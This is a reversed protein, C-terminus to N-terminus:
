RRSSLANRLLDLGSTFDLYGHDILMDELAEMVLGDYDHSSFTDPVRAAYGAQVWDQSGGTGFRKMDIRQRLDNPRGHGKGDSQAALLHLEVKDVRAGSPLLDILADSILSMTLQLAERFLFAATRVPISENMSLGVDLIATALDGGSARPLHVSTLASVGQDVDGGLRYSADFGSQQAGPTPEWDGISESQVANVSSSVQPRRSAHRRQLEVIQLTADSRALADVLNTRSRPRLIDCDDARILGTSAAVRLQLLPLETWGQPASATNPMDRHMRQVTPRKSRAALQDLRDIRQILDEFFEDAGNTDIEAAQRHTIVRLAEETNDGHFTCWYSPYRRAPSRLIANVLASDYNASWGVFLLGFEDFVSRLLRNWQAPYKALEAPSIRLSTTAYDGHLKLITPVSTHILPAMGRIADNSAIVQPTVGAAYLAHEILRDFNTTLILRVQGRVCLQALADHAPTPAMRPGPSPPPDFYDKLLVKRAAETPALEALLDDFRPDTGYTDRWWNEPATKLLEPECGEARGVQRILDQVVQWGNPIGAATSMGSGILVANVGPAAHIATAVSVRPDIGLTPSPVVTM